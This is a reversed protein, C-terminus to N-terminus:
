RMRRLTPRPPKPDSPPLHPALAAVTPHEFLLPLPLEVGLSARVRGALRMSLLSDGGLAFFSDDLTVEPLGLVEAFLGCLARERETRPTRGGPAPALGPAPLAAHDLKGNVTLPLADIVVVASPVMHGPLREALADTLRGTDIRGAAAGSGPVVYAVLRRDGPRDERVVVAAHGVGPQALLATEIEGPEVRFGRVKVQTDARGAFELQGDPTWRALDGTRYMREGPVGYSDAYPDAVFREATRGPRALYGRALGAGAVYLEGVTGPPVLGLSRDLVYTRTGDMPGGIPVTDPVRDGPAFARCTAFATTETPGYVAVVTTGPCAGLVARLPEPPVREGGTWVERLGGFCDPAEEALVRFLGITLFMATLGHEAVLEKVVPPTLEGPPAVVVRGGNLLPVWIEYTAADFAHSSHLLVRDHAGGTFRLDAALAIVDRHTVAVGKPLGTSGSTYMVYALADPHSGAARTGGPRPAPCVGDGTLTRPAWADPLLVNAGTDRLIFTRREAPWRTDIPVYAAGSRVVALLAVVLDASREMAVAVRRGPGAGCLVLERALAEARVDLERYTLRTGGDVVATRHPTRAAQDAFLRSLDPPGPVATLGHGAQPAGRGWDALARGRETASLVDTRAVPRGPDTAAARLIRVLRDLIDRATAADFLDPRHDLRLRLRDGPHTILALPYHTGGQDDTGTIRPGPGAPGEPATGTDVPYNEHVVVTDFLEGKGAIRQLEALGVYQHDILRSQEDQLRACVAGLSDGPAVRVRVPLTNILLGVMDAVGPLEPPRVSVVGGFVVDDRGTLKHLLVGWAGQILTNLTLGGAAARARLDATLGEDLDATLHAPAQPARDAPPQAAEPALRTPGEIGALASAWAARAVEHDRGALWALYDRFPRVRPLAAPDGRHAHLTLLERVLVPVSWGDLLIHHHTLAFLHEQDALQVLTFRLLPPRALDFGRGREEALLRAAVDARERAADAYTDAYTDTDGEAGAVEPLGPAGVPGSGDGAAGVGTAGGGMAGIGVAAGEPGPVVDSGVGRLDHERWPTEVEAAILQVPRDLDEHLFAARLNAHRALLTDCAARLHTHDLPGTLRLTLQVGYGDVTGAAGRTGHQAHYLLGEQLPSLPLIDEIEASM